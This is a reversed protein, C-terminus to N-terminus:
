FSLGWSVLEGTDRTAHDEVRLKWTGSARESSANILFAQDIDNGSGGSRNHLNYATGDPAILDVTLDGRWTHLIEVDVGLSTPANGAVYKVTISSETVAHDNIPLTVNNVHWHSGEISVGQYSRFARVGVYYTGGQGSWLRCSEVNDARYPRCDYTTTTPPAGYRVYLDADGTGGSMSFDIPAAGNPVEMQYVLWEGRSASLGTGKVDNLLHGCWGVIAGMDSGPRISTAWNNFSASWLLTGNFGTNRNNWYEAVHPRPSTRDPNVCPMMYTPTEVANWDVYFLYAADQNAFVPADWHQALAPSLPLLALISIWKKM